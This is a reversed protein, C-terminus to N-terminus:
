SQKESDVCNKKIPNLQNIILGKGLKNFLKTSHQM